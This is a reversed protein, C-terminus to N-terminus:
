EFIDSQTQDHKTAKRSTTTLTGGNCKVALPYFLVFNYWADLGPREMVSLILFFISIAILRYDLNKVCRYHAFSIWALIFLMWLAGRIILYAVYASDMIMEIEQSYDSITIDFQEFPHGFVPIGNLRLAYGGEVFRMALTHLPTGYFHEHVWDMQWCFFMMVAFIIFPMAILIVDLISKPKSRELDTPTQEKDYPDAHRESTIEHDSVKTQGSEANQRRKDYHDQLLEACIAAVPFVFALGAITLCTIYKYMFLATAWFLVLTVIKFVKQRRLFLYWILVLLAFVMFGWNNPYLIGLSHGGFERDPKAADFTIGLPLGIMGTLLTATFIGLFCYLIKKYSKGYAMLLFFAGMAYSYSDTTVVRSLIGAAALVFAGMGILLPIRNWAKKWEAMISLLYLASGWMVIAFFVRHVVWVTDMTKAEWGVMFMIKSVVFACLLVLYYIERSKEVQEFFSAGEDKVKSLLSPEEDAAISLLSSGEYREKASLSIEKHITGSIGSQM